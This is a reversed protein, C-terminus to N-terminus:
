KKLRREINFLKVEFRIAAKFMNHAEEMLDSSFGKLYDLYDEQSEDTIRGTKYNVMISARHVGFILDFGLLNHDECVTMLKTGLMNFSEPVEKTEDLLRKLQATNRKQNYSIGKADLEAKIVERETREVECAEMDSAGRLKGDDDTFFNKIQGM